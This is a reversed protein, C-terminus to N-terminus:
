GSPVTVMTLKEFHSPRAPRRRPASTAEGSSSARMRGCECAGSPALTSACRAAM